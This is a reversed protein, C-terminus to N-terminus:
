AGFNMIKKCNEIVLNNSNERLFQIFNCLKSNEIQIKAGFVSM